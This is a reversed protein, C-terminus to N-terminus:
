LRSTDPFAFAARHAAQRSEGTALLRSVADANTKQVQLKSFLNHGQARDDSLILIIQLEPALVQFM